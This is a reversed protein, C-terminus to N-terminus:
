ETLGSCDNFASRCGKTEQCTLCAAGNPDALCPGLCKAVTCSVFDAYCTACSSSMALKALICDRSCNKDANGLCSKGCTQAAERAEGDAVFPCDKDNQCTTNAAPDCAVNGSAGGAAPVGGNGGPEGGNSGPEGGNPEGGNSGPEGGNGSPSGASNGSGSKGGSASSDDDDGSCAVATVGAMSVLLLGTIIRKM